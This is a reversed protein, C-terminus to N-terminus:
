AIFGYPDIEVEAGSVAVAIQLVKAEKGSLGFAALVTSEATIQLRVKGIQLDIGNTITEHTKSGHEVVRVSIAKTVGGNAQPQAYELKTSYVCPM